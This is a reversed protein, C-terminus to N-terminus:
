FNKPLFFLIKYLSPKEVYVKTYFYPLLYKLSMNKENENTFVIESLREVTLRM